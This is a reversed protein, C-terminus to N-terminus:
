GVNVVFQLWERVGDRAVKFVGLLDDVAELNELSGM